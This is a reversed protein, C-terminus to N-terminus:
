KIKRLIESAVTLDELLIKRFTNLRIPEGEKFTSSQNSRLTNKRYLEILNGSIEQSNFMLGTTMKIPQDKFYNYKADSSEWLSFFKQTQLVDKIYLYFELEERYGNLSKQESVLRKSANDLKKSIASIGVDGTETLAKKIADRTKEVGKIAASILVAVAASSGDKAVGMSRIIKDFNALFGEVLSETALAVEKGAKAALVVKYAGPLFPIIEGAVVGNYIEYTYVSNGQINSELSAIDENLGELSKETKKLQSNVGPLLKTTLGSYTRNILSSLSDSIYSIINNIFGTTKDLANTASYVANQIAELAEM